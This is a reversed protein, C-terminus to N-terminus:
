NQRPKKYQKELNELFAKSQGKPVSQNQFNEGRIMKVLQVIQGVHYVTHALSRQIADPVTHPQSRITVTAELDQLGLGKLSALAIAWGENWAAILSEPTDSDFLEFEADRNRDPKEGDTTLFDRWRSRLNGAMHKVIHALSNSESAPIFFWEEPSVQALSKEALNKYREFEAITAKLFLESPNM